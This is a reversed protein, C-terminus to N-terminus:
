SLLEQFCFSSLIKQLVWKKEAGILNQSYALEVHVASPTFSCQVPSTANFKVHLLCRGKM